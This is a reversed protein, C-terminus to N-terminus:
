YFISQLFNQKYFIGLNLTKFANVKHCAIKYYVSQLNGLFLVRYACRSLFHNKIADNRLHEKVQNMNKIPNIM